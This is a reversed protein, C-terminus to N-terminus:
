DSQLHKSFQAVYLFHDQFIVVKPDVLWVLRELGKSCDKQSLVGILRAVKISSLYVKFLALITGRGFLSICNGMPM